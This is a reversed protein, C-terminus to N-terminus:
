QICPQRSHSFTQTFGFIPPSGSSWSLDKRNWAAGAIGTLEITDYQIQLMSSEPSRSVQILTLGGPAQRAAEIASRQEGRLTMRQTVDGEPYENRISQFLDVKALRDPRSNVLINAMNVTSETERNENWAELAARFNKWRRESCAKHIFGPVQPASQLLKNFREVDVQDEWRIAPYDVDDTYRNTSSDRPRSIIALLSINSQPITSSEIVHGSWRKRTTGKIKETKDVNFDVFIHEGPQYQHLGSAGQYCSHGNEPRDIPKQADQIMLLYQCTGHGDMTFLRFKRRIFAKPAGLEKVYQGEQKLAFYMVTNYHRIGHFSHVAPETFDRPTITDISGKQNEQFTAPMPHCLKLPGDAKVKKQFAKMMENYDDKIVDGGIIIMNLEIEEGKLLKQKLNYTTSEPKEQMLKEIRCGESVFKIHLLYIHDKEDIFTKDRKGTKGTADALHEATWYGQEVLTEPTVETLQIGSDIDPKISSGPICLKSTLAKGLDVM